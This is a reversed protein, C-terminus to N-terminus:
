GDADGRCDTCDGLVEVIHEVPAFGTPGVAAGIATDVGTDALELVARCRRCILFQGSHGDAPGHCVAFANLSALRHVLGVDILFELARYVTMPATRQGDRNLRDLIDYAGMAVHSSLLIELVRRRQDTLRAGRSRCAAQARDLGRAICAPHDHDRAPFGPDTEM